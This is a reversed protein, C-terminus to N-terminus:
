RQPKRMWIALAWMGFALGLAVLAPAHPAFAVPWTAGIALALCFVAAKVVGVEWWNLEVRKFIVAM